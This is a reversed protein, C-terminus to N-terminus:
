PEGQLLRIALNLFWPNDHFSSLAAFWMQWDLRPQLPAVLSPAKTISGPKYRFQYADWIVGDNSGEIQIELRETTM